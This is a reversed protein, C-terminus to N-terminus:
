YAFAFFYLLNVVVDMLKAIAEVYMWVWKRQIKPDVAGASAGVVLFGPGQKPYVKMFYLAWLLHEPRGGRPRLKEFVVLEWLIKVVRVNTGFFERFLQAEKVELGVRRSARNQINRALGPFNPVDENPKISDISEDDKVMTVNTNNDTM